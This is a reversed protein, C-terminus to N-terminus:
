SYRLLVEQVGIQPVGAGTAAGTAAIGPLSGTAEVFGGAESARVRICVDKLPLARTCTFGRYFRGQPIGAM